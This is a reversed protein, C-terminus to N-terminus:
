MKKPMQAKLWRVCIINFSFSSFYKQTENSFCNKRVRSNNYPDLVTKWHMLTQWTGRSNNFVEAKPRPKWFRGQSRAFTLANSFLTQNRNNCLNLWLASFSYSPFGESVSENLNLIEDLVGRPFFSLVFLCWLCWLRCGPSCCNGMCTTM